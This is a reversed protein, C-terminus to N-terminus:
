VAPCPQAPGGKLSHVRDTTSKIFNQIEQSPMLQDIVKASLRMSRLRTPELIATNGCGQFDKFFQKM